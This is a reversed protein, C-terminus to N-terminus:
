SRNGGKPAYTSGSQPASRGTATREAGVTGLGDAVAAGLVNSWTEVLGRDQLIRRFMEPTRRSLDKLAAQQATKDTMEFIRELEALMPAASDARGQQLAAAAVQNFLEDGDGAGARNALRGLMSPEEAPAATLKLGLKESLEAPDARMQAQSLKLVREVIKDLDEQDAAALQWYALQPMGPFREELLPRDVQDQMLESIEMAEAIALADFADGHEKAQGSNLGTPATLMSLLGGTGALVVEENQYDLHSRFPTEGQNGLALTKIDSGPPLAGRSNGVVKEMMQLWTEVQDSPTQAPLVGFISPIGYSEIFQDWDKKSLNKRLFCLVAVEDVGGVDDEIERIVFHRNDIRTPTGDAQASATYRWAWEDDRVWHYQPVPQLRVIGRSPDGDQYHKELHAYARFTALGLFRVAQRLNRIKEYYARLMAAQEEAKSQLAPPVDDRIRIDWDLNGLASLRRAKLAKVTADRREVQAYLRQLDPWRGREGEELLRIVKPMDLGRLPNPLDRLKATRVYTKAWALLTDASTTPATAM